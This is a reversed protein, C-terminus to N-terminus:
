TSNLRYIQVLHFIYVLQQVGIQFHVMGDQATANATGITGFTDWENGVLYKQSPQAAIFTNDLRICKVLIYNDMRKDTKLTWLKLLKNKHAFRVSITKGTILIDSLLSDVM